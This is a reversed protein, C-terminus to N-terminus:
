QQAPSCQVCHPSTHQHPTDACTVTSHRPCLGWMITVSWRRYIGAGRGPGPSTIVLFNSQLFHEKKHISTFIDFYRLNNWSECKRRWINASYVALHLNQRCSIKCSMDISSISVAVWGRRHWWCGTKQGKASAFTVVLTTQLGAGGQSPLGCGQRSDVSDCLHGM